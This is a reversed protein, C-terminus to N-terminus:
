ILKIMNLYGNFLIICTNVTEYKDENNEIIVEKISEKGEKVNIEKDIKVIVREVKPCNKEIWEIIQSRIRINHPMMGYPETNKSHFLFVTPFGMIGYENIFSENEGEGEMRSIIIDDRKNLEFHEFAADYEPALMRCYGCWKTYFKVILCKNESLKKNFLM